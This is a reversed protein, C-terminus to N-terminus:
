VISAPLTLARRSQVSEIGSYEYKGASSAEFLSFVATPTPSVTAPYDFAPDISSRITYLHHTLALPRFWHCRPILFSCPGHALPNLFDNVM